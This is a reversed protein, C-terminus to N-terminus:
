EHSTEEHKHFEPKIRAIDAPSAVRIPRPPEWEHPPIEAPIVHALHKGQRVGCGPYGCEPDLPAYGPIKATESSSATHRLITKWPGDTLVRGPTETKEDLACVSMSVVADLYAWGMANEDIWTRVRKIRDVGGNAWDPRLAILASALRDREQVNM